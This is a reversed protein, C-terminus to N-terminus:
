QRIEGPKAFNKGAKPQHYGREFDIPLEPFAKLRFLLFISEGQSREVNYVLEVTWEHLDRRLHYEQDPLDYIKKVTRDGRDSTETVFRKVDVGQYIGVRWKEGLNFVTQLTVISASEREYRYGVGVSWPLERSAGAKDDFIEGIKRGKLSGSADPGAVLDANITVPKGQFRHPDISADSEFYLGRYLKTELDLGVNGWRGGRGGDGELDYGSNIIFRALDVTEWEGGKGPRKTQLKQELSPALTNGKALSDTRLFRDASLTPKAQYAYGLSPTIVHRLKHIDLGWFNTETTFVRLFKTNLDFGTTAAQRFLSKTTKVGQSFSTERFKVFPRFNLFRLLRMPYFVEQTTDGVVVSEKLGNGSPQAVNSHSYSFSSQYYWRWENWTPLWPIALPRINLAISPWQQTLTEFKNVRKNVLFTFGYWATSRVLSLYTPFTPQQEMERLFFDQVVTADKLANYEVTARTAPDIDWRHRLQVRFREHELTGPQEKSTLLGSWLHERQIDRQHTYYTRLLGEGGEPLKYKLDVGSALDKRERYDVLIRGQLNETLYLRWSTLVFLGWQKSKGPIITVRPRKDDLPHTYSPLYFVPLNGVRMVVHRLVVKDDLFVRIEKAQLRTHPEEFDCSTIYGPRLLVSTGAVKQAEDGVTRWPGAEGEAELVTGKKTGFNYIMERGKMLGQPQVLRVQGRLYADKTVTYITAQDCTFKTDRYTAVVNGSAVVKHLSDFYEVQDGRITVPEEAAAFAPVPLLVVTMALVRLARLM